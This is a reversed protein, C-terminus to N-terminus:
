YGESGTNKPNFSTKFLRPKIKGVPKDSPKISKSTDGPNANANVQQRILSTDPKMNAVTDKVKDLYRMNDGYSEPLTQPRGAAFGGSTNSGFNVGSARNAVKGAVKGKSVIKKGVKGIPSQAVKPAVKAVKGAARGATVATKALKGAKMVGGVGPVLGGVASAGRFAADGHDGQAVDIGASVADIGSGIINLGPVFSAVGSVVDGVGQAFDIAKKIFGEEIQKELINKTKMSM